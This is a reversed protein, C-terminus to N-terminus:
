SNCVVDVTPTRQHLLLCPLYSKVIMLLYCVLTEVQSVFESIAIAIGIRAGNSM